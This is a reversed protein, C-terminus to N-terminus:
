TTPNSTRGLLASKTRGASLFYRSSVFHLSVGCHHFLCLGFVLLRRRAVWLLRALILAIAPFIWEGLAALALFTVSPATRSGLKWHCPGRLRLVTANKDKANQWKSKWCARLRGTEGTTGIELALPMTLCSLISLPLFCHQTASRVNVFLCLRFTGTGNERSGKAFRPKQVEILGNSDPISVLKHFIAFPLFIGNTARLLALSTISRWLSGYQAVTTFSKTGYHLIKIALRQNSGSQVRELSLFSWSEDSSQAKMENTCPISCEGQKKDTQAMKSTSLMLFITFIWHSQVVSM